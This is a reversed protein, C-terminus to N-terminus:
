FCKQALIRKGHEEWDKRTVWMKKFTGLSGLISGGVFTSNIRARPAIIKIKTHSPSIQRLESLLRDGFGEFLTSGGSLLINQYLGNRIDLDTKEIAVHLAQHVGNYEEGIISPDFLIEPARFKESQLKVINGDPLEYDIVPDKGEFSDNESKEINTSVICKEEKIQKVIEMEASSYFNYGGRQLLRQLYETIDRGAVNIRQVGHSMAFGEYIPVVSTVGDGSDLVIGTTKASAYLSLIAQVQIYFGPVNFTEFFIQAAKERNPQPNNPPETLLVPHQEPNEVDLEQLTYKWIELMDAWDDKGEVVGHNIPYNLKIVGRHQSAKDGVLVDEEIDGSMVKEYKPRGVFSPFQVKPVEDGAIGAKISGTGNDIIVAQLFSM